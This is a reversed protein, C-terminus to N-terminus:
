LIAVIGFSVRLLLLLSFGIIARLLFAHTMTSASVKWNVIEQNRRVSVLMETIFQGKINKKNKWIKSLDVPYVKHYNGTDITKFAWWAAKALYSIALVFIPLMLGLTVLESKNIWIETEFYTILPILAITVMLLNSAKAEASKRRQDEESVLRRAEDVALESEIEWDREKIEHIEREELKLLEKEAKPEPKSYTPWLINIM